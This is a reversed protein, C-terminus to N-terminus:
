NPKSYYFPESSFVIDDSEDNSLVLTSTWFYGLIGKELDEETPMDYYDKGLNRFVSYAKQSLFITKVASGSAEIERFKENFIKIIEQHRIEKEVQKICSKIIDEIREKDLLLSSECMNLVENEKVSTQM